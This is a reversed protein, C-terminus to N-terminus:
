SPAGRERTRTSQNRGLVAPEKVAVEPDWGRRIRNRIVSDSVGTRRSWEPATLRQGFADILVTNRKNSAQELLTAWRCNTPEYPGNVDKRDISHEASPRRGMDALFNEYGQPGSWRDCVRIGRAGYDAYGRHSTQYCREHIARWTRHEVSRHSEGHTRNTAAKGRRSCSRCRGHKLNQALVEATRDCDCICAYVRRSKTGTGPRRPLEHLVTWSGYRTGSPISPSPLPGNRINRKRM